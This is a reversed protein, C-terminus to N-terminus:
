PQAPLHLATGASSSPSGCSGRFSHSCSSPAHLAHAAARAADCAGGGPAVAGRQGPPHSHCGAPAAPSREPCPSVCQAGPQRCLGTCALWDTHPARHELNHGHQQSPATQQRASAARLCQVQSCIHRAPSYPSSLMCSAGETREEQLLRVQLTFYLFTPVATSLQLPSPLGLLRAAAAPGPVVEAQPVAGAPEHRLVEVRM